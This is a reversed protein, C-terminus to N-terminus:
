GGDNLEAARRLELFATKLNHNVASEPESLVLEQYTDLYTGRSRAFLHLFHRLFGICDLIAVETGLQWYVRRAYEEVDSEIADTTVFLYNDIASPSGAIKRTAADIDDRTVPKMKMEYATIVSKEGAACIEIDGVSGTQTDAANHANLPRVLERLQEAAARYAAAVVLVPLRSARPCALHERILTVIGESSVAPAKGSPRRALQAIEANRERRIILLTRVFEALLDDAAVEGGAVDALLQLANTYLERPQGVLELDNTLPYDINRLTPTLFATTRNAPLRNEVIFYTLYREDYTRGSFSDTGGIETYPKRPDVSPVDLKALLCSM